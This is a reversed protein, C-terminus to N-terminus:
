QEFAESEDSIRFSRKVFNRIVTEVLGQQCLSAITMLILSSWSRELFHKWRRFMQAEIGCTFHLTGVIIVM